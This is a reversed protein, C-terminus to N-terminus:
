LRSARNVVEALAILLPTAFDSVEVSTNKSEADIMANAGMAHRLGRNGNFVGKASDDGALFKAPEVM